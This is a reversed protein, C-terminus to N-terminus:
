SHESKIRHRSRIPDTVSSDPRTGRIKQIVGVVRSNTCMTHLMKEAEAEGMWQGMKRHYRETKEWESWLVQQKRVIQERLSKPKARSLEMTAPKPKDRHPFVISETL